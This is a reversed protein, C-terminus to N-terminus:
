SSSAASATACRTATATCRAAGGEGLPRQARHVRGALAAARRRVRGRGARDPRARQPLLLMLADDDQLSLLLQFAGLDAYSAVEPADGNRLRVAELACRAEHFSLRLSHTPAARSAARACRAAARAALEARIRQAGARTPDPEVGDLRRRDGRVAPGRPDGRPQQVGSARSSGSWCRRRARRPRRLAFALVAAQEGIGFPRLRAQLEEPYLHGTLAEALVDGAMSRQLMEYREDLLHAFARETIAIFPLEYPVEFLPFDRKRATTSWRRRCSSTARLRHRLRARRDRARGPPRDARAPGEAGDCSSAPADAAARRRAAVADPRGARHHAGLARAGAGLRGRRQRARPRARRDPERRHADCPRSQRDAGVGREAGPAPDGRDGRVARPGAILPPSLQVIPDGRDDTRCILGRRYLEGSLFGRLLQEAEEHTSPRRRTRTRSWSSRTSTAPAACTASSRCTACARSCRASRRGRQRARARM